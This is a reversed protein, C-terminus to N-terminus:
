AAKADESAISEDGAILEAIRTRWTEQAAAVFARHPGNSGILDSGIRAPATMNTVPNLAAEVARSFTVRGQLQLAALKIRGAVAAAEHSQIEAAIAEAEASLIQYVASGVEAEAKKMDAQREDHAAQLSSLAKEAIAASNQASLLAQALKVDHCPRPEADKAGHTLWRELTRAQHAEADSAVRACEDVKHHASAAVRQARDLAQGAAELRARALVRGTYAAELASRDPVFPRGDMMRQYARDAEAADATEIAENM